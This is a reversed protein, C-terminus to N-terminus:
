VVFIVVDPPQVAYAFEGFLRELRVQKGVYRSVLRFQASKIVCPVRVVARSVHVHLRVTERKMAIGDRLARVGRASFNAKSVSPVTPLHPPLPRKSSHGDNANRGARRRQLTVTVYCQEATVPFAPAPIEDVIMQKVITVTLAVVRLEIVRRYILNIFSYSHYSNVTTGVYTWMM